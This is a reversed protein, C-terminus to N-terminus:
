ETLINMKRSIRHLFLTLSWGIDSYIQILRNWIPMRGLSTSSTTEWICDDSTLPDKRAGLATAACCSGSYSFMATPGMSRRFRFFFCCFRRLAESERTKVAVTFPIWFAILLDVVGVLCAVKPGLSDEAAEDKWQVGSGVCRLTREHQNRHDFLNTSKTGVDQFIELGICADDVEAAGNVEGRKGAAFRFADTRACACSDLGLEFCSLFIGGAAAGGDFVSACVGWTLPLDNETLFFNEVCFNSVSSEFPAEEEAAPMGLGGDAAICSSLKEGRGLLGRRSRTVGPDSSLAEESRGMSTVSMLVGLLRSPVKPSVIEELPDLADEEVAAVM